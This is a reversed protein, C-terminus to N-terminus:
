AARFGDKWRRLEAFRADRGLGPPLRKAVADIVSQEDIRLFPNCARESAINSPLSPRQQRRLKQVTAAREILAPNDPDVHLAFLANSETYEHACCVETRSPLAALRDLSELMQAATGEALRGCGLSFLVDGCFVRSGDFYAVHSHTHGAVAMVRFTLVLEDVRILDGDAVRHDAIPIRADHPAYVPTPWAQIIQALGDIHDHHHHTILIAIPRLGDRILRLVPEADGPDVIVAANDRGTLVWIYNDIFAPLALLAPM